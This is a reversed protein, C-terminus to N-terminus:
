EGLETLAEWINTLRWGEVGLGFVVPQELADGIEKDIQSGTRGKEQEEVVQVPGVVGGQEKELVQGATQRLDREQNDSGVAVTLHVVPM